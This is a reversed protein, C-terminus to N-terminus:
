LTHMFIHFKDSHVWRGLVQSKFSQERRLKLCHLSWDRIQENQSWYVKKLDLVLIFVAVCVATIHV